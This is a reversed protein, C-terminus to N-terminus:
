DTDAHEPFVAAWVDSFAMAQFRMCAGRDHLLKKLAPTELVNPNHFMSEVLRKHAHWLAYDARCYEQLAAAVKTGDQTESSEIAVLQGGHFEKVIGAVATDVDNEKLFCVFREQNSDPDCGITSLLQELRAFNFANGDLELAAAANTYASYAAIYDSVVKNMPFSM